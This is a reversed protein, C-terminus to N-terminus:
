KTLHRGDPRESITLGFLDSIRKAFVDTDKLYFRGSINLAAISPDDMIIPRIAYRNAEAVLSGLSIRDYEAWGSPWDGPTPAAVAKAPEAQGGGTSLVRMEGAVIPFPNGDGTATTGVPFASAQGALVAVESRDDEATLDFVAEQTQVAAGGGTAEAIFPRKERVVTLRARGHVLRVRREGASYSLELRTDTDLIASSGDPLRFTRIEGRRTTLPENAYASPAIGTPGLSSISLAGVGAVILLAGTVVVGWTMRRGASARRRRAEDSGFRSSTKLIASANMARSVREYADRHAPAAALWAEFEPRIANAEEGRMKVLWARAVEDVAYDGDRASM